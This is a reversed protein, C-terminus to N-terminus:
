CTLYGGYSSVGLVKHTNSLTEVRKKALNHHGEPYCHILKWALSYQGNQEEICKLTQQKPVNLPSQIITHYVKEMVSSRAWCSVM